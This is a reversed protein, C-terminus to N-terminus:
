DSVKRLIWEIKEAKNEIGRARENLLKIKSAVEEERVTQQKIRQEGIKGAWRLGSLWYGILIALAPIIVVLFAIRGLPETEGRYILVVSALVFSAVIILIGKYTEKIDKTESIKADLNRKTLILLYIGAATAAIYIGFLITENM